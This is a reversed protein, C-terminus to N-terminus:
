KDVPYTAVGKSGRTLVRIRTGVVGAIQQQAAFEEAYERCASETGTKAAKHRFWEGRMGRQEKVVKHTWTNKMPELIPTMPTHLQTINIEM